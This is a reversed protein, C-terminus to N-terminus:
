GFRPEPRSYIEVTPRWIRLWTAALHDLLWYLDGAGRDGLVFAFVDGDNDGQPVHRREIAVTAGTNV